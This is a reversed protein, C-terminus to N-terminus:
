GTGSLRGILASAGVVVMVAIGFGVKLAAAVVRGVLAGTAVRVPEGREKRDVTLEALLAGVFAGGFAGVMSGLVPVPVGIVAGVIGGLVAGWAARRSGGYKRAYRGSVTFELVEAVIVLASAVLLTALGVDGTPVAMWYLLTAGLMVWLGPLGLPVLVLGASLAAFLLVLALM